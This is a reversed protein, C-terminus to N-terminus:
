LFNEAENFGKLIYSDCLTGVESPNGDASTRRCFDEVEDRGEFLLVMSDRVIRVNALGQGATPGGLPDKFENSIKFNQAYHLVKANASNQGTVTGRFFDAIEDPREFIFVISNCLADM